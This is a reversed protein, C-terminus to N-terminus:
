IKGASVDESAECRHADFSRGPATGTSSGDDM